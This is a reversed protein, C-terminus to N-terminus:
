RTWDDTRLGPIKGFDGVNRTLLTLGRSLAIAVIRLDMTGVRLRQTALKEYILAADHDFPLIPLVAFTRAVQDMLDYGRVLGISNVARNIYTHGGLAQEHFSIISFAVGSDANLAVRTALNTYEIGAGDQIITVHDTDLLFKV